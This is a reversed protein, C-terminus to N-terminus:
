TGKMLKEGRAVVVLIVTKPTGSMKPTEEASLVAGLIPVLPIALKTGKGTM